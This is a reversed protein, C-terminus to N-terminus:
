SGSQEKQLRLMRYVQSPAVAGSLGKEGCRDQFEKGQGGTRRIVTPGKQWMERCWGDLLEWTLDIRVRERASFSASQEEWWETHRDSPCNEKWCWATRWSQLM